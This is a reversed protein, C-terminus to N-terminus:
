TIGKEWFALLLIYALIRHFWWLPGPFLILTKTTGPFQKGTSGPPWRGAEPSLFIFVFSLGENKSIPNLELVHLAQVSTPFSFQLLARVTYDKVGDGYTTTTCISPLYNSCPPFEQKLQASGTNGPKWFVGCDLSTSWILVYPKRCHLPGLKLIGGLPILAINLECSTCLTNRTFELM